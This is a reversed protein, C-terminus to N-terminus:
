PATVGMTALVGKLLAATGGYEASGAFADGRGTALITVADPTSGASGQWDPVFAYVADDEPKAGSDPVLLAPRCEDLGALLCMPVARSAFADCDDGTGGFQPRSECFATAWATLGAVSEIDAGDGVPQQWGAIGLENDPRGFEDRVVLSDVGAQWAGTAREVVWGEPYAMTYGYVPSFFPTWGTIGPM